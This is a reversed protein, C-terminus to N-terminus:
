AQTAVVNEVVRLQIRPDGFKARREPRTGYQSNAGTVPGHGATEHPDLWRSQVSRGVVCKSTGERERERVAAVPRLYFFEISLFAADLLSHAGPAARPLVTTARGSSTHRPAARALPLHKKDGRCSIAGVRPHWATCSAAQLAVAGLGDHPSSRVPLPHARAPDSDFSVLALWCSPGLHAGSNTRD